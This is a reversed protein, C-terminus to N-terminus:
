QVCTELLNFQKESLNKMNTIIEDFSIMSYMYATAANMGKFEIFSNVNHSEKLFQKKSTYKKMKDKMKLSLENVGQIYDSMNEDISKVNKKMALIVRANYAEIERSIVNEIATIYEINVIKQAIAEQKAATIVTKIFNEKGKELAKNWSIITFLNDQITNEMEATNCNITDLFIQMSLITSELSYVSVDNQIKNNFSVLTKELIKNSVGMSINVDNPIDLKFDAWLGFTLLLLLKIIKM